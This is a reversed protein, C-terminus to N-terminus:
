VVPPPAAGPSMAGSAEGPVAGGGTQSGDQPRLSDEVSGDTVKHFNDSLDDAGIKAFEKSINMLISRLEPTKLMGLILHGTRVQNSNFLLSGYVWAREMADQLHSSLDSISSAGRPLADLARTMDASLKAPDLDYHQIIKQVDSNDLQVLQAFWHVEEVYPNGRMKCFVTAGEVAQYGVKNLKGFLAVRSIETM